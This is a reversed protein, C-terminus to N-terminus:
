EKVINLKRDEDLYVRSGEDIGHAYLWDDEVKMSGEEGNDGKLINLFMM